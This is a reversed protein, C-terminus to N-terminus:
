DAGRVEPNGIAWDRMVGGGSHGLALSSIRGFATNAYDKHFGKDYVKDFYDM